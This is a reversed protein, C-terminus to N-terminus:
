PQNSSLSKQKMHCLFPKTDAVVLDRNAFWGGAFPLKSITNSRGAIRRLVVSAIRTALRYIRPHTTTFMWVAFCIRQLLSEDGAAVQDERLNRMLDPLPIQVPCHASCAGCMTAAHPLDDHRHGFLLPSLVAGMPGSYVSNYSLGGAIKYVPCHNMCSGCRICRLMQHYKGALIKSRGNDIMIIHYHAPNNSARTGTMLSVYSTSHQGTAARPLLRLLVALEQPSPIVKEIGALTIRLKPATACFFGNGENTVIVASGTSALLFNAGTIGIDAELLRPRLRLRAEAVLQEKSDRNAPGHHTAFIESVQEKTMHIIPAIIHSPRSDSLQVVYEGLDTELVDVGANTMARNLEIEESLMSKSKIATSLKHERTIKVVLARAEAADAAWHVVAGAATANHEFQELLKDLRCLADQRINAGSDSWAQYDPHQMAIDSKGFVGSRAHEMAAKLNADDVGDAIRNAFSIPATQM